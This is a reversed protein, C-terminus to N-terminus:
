IPFEDINSVQRTREDQRGKRPSKLVTLTSSNALRTSARSIFPVFHGIRRTATEASHGIRACAIELWLTTNNPNPNNEVM